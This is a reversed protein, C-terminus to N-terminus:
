WCWIALMERRPSAEWDTRTIQVDLHMGSRWQEAPDLQGCHNDIMRGPAKEREGGGGGGGGGGPAEGIASYSILTYWSYCIGRM